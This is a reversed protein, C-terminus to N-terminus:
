PTSGVRLNFYPLNSCALLALGIGIMWPKQIKPVTSLVFLLAALILFLVSLKM